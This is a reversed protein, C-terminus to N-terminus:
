IYGKGVAYKVLDATKKFNLKGMINSRHREVTRSSICLIEAIQRSSKGEAILKLVERERNSLQDREEIASYDGRFARTLDQTLDESLKPSLFAMGKRIKDIATFLEKDADEKLLYGNAGAAIANRLYDRERHMTLVLVKVGPFEAKIEHVAEIGRMNPMSVDAIILDAPTTRVVQLLELGDGAEGVIQIGPIESLIRKLGQRFLAHDDAIIVRFRTM